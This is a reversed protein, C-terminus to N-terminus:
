GEKFKGLAFDVTLDDLVAPGFRRGTSAVCPESAIKEYRLEAIFKQEKADYPGGCAQRRLFDERYTVSHVIKSEQSALDWETIDLRPDRCGNEHLPLQGALAKEAAVQDPYVGLMRQETIWYEWDSHASWELVYVKM